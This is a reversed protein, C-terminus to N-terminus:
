SEGSLANLRRQELSKPMYPSWELANMEAETMPPKFVALHYLIQECSDLRHRRALRQRLPSMRAFRSFYFFEIRLIRLDFGPHSSDSSALGWRKGLPAQHWEIPDIVCTPANTWFRPTHENFNQKHYPNALNLQMTAYPAVIVVQAGPRSIRWVEQMTSMLDAVHELSHFALILDFSNDAFPLHPADMQAVLDVGPLQFRDLGLFGQAKSAGCGLELSRM